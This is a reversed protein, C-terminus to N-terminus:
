YYALLYVIVLSLGLIGSILGADLSARGYQASVSNITQPSFDVPLSGYKLVRAPSAAEAQTFGTSGGGTIQVNGATIPEATVEASAVNGDLVVATSDLAQDDANGRPSGAYYANYQSTTLTGFRAAAGANLSLNVAWQGSNQQLGATVSTIDRGAYVAP